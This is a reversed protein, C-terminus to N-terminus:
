EKNNKNLHKVLQGVGLGVGTGIVATAAGKKWGLKKLFKKNIDKQYGRNVQNIQKLSEKRINRATKKAQSEANKITKLKGAYEEVNGNRFLFDGRARDKLQSSVFKIKNIQNKYIENVDSKMKKIIKNNGKHNKILDKIEDGGLAYLTGASALGGTISGASISKAKSNKNDEKKKYSFYKRTLIM